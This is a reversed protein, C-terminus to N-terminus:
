PYVPTVWDLTECPSGGSAKSYTVVQVKLGEPYQKGWGLCSRHYAMEFTKGALPSATRFTRLQRDERFAFIANDGYSAATQLADDSDPEDLFAVIAGDRDAAAEALEIGVVLWDGDFVM